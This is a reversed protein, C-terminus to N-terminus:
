VTCQIFLPGAKGNLPLIAVMIIIIKDPLRGFGTPVDCSAIRKELTELAKKNLIELKLWLKFIHKSTGLFLNHM